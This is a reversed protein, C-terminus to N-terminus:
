VEQLGYVDSSPSGSWLSASSGKKQEYVSSIKSGYRFRGKAKSAHRELWVGRALMGLAEMTGGQFSFPAKYERSVADAFAFGRMKLLLKEPTAYTDTAEVKSHPHQIAAGVAKKNIYLALTVM